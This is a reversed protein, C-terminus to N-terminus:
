PTEREPPPLRSSDRPGHAVGEALRGEAAAVHWKEFADATRDVDYRTAWTYGEKVLDARLAADGAMRRVATALATEDGPAFLLCNGEHRLFDASGGAGSAVVPTGCAMAELPVLGFPEPWESPFVVCDHAQYAAAIAAHEVRDFSVRDAVGLETALTVLRATEHGEAGGLLTLTAEPLHVLSRLLTDTGKRPDLRGVYLLKWSWSGTISAPAPPPAPFLTRDIGAPVVASIPFNWPSGQRSREETLASVFCFCGTSDLDALVTPTRLVPEAVTALARRAPTRNWRRSWPDLAIGYTLWDDCIAYVMPIKRRGVTSLLSLSLAGMHWVSVVEPALRDLVLALERQNHLEMERQERWGPTWPAADRWYMRLRRHVSLQDADDSPGTGAVAVEPQVPVEPLVTDSCLVEVEHGRAALRTMVDHCEVEYGGRAHPPYWNTLTLIRAM